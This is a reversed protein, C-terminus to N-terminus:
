ATDLASAITNRNIGFMGSSRKIVGGRSIVGYHRRIEHYGDETILVIWGYGVEVHEYPNNFDFNGDQWYISEVVLNDNKDKWSFLGKDVPKWGLDFGVRPNLALWNAKEMQYNYGNHAIVLERELHQTLDLYDKAYMRVTNAFPLSDLSLDISDWIKYPPIARSLSIREESPWERQLRKLHTWEALILRRDSSHSKLLPLSNELTKDWDKPLDLYIGLDDSLGGAREIYDPRPKADVLFLTPDHDRFVFDLFPLDSFSLKNADYLEAAIHGISNKCPFIKPKNHSIRLNIKELFASLDAPELALDNFLWTRQIEIDKLKEVAHYLLNNEPVDANQAIERAEIDLPQLVLAPDGLLVSKGDQELSYETKHQAIDPLHLMYIAPLSRELKPPFSSQGSSNILIKTAIMRIIINPSNQLDSLEKQFSSIESPKHLSVVELAVLGNIVLQDHKALAQHLADKVVSSGALLLRSCAQIANNFVPYAPFDLFLMLLEALASRIDDNQKETSADLISEIDPQSETLIENFLEDLYAEVDPWLKLYPIDEFLVQAIDSLDRILQEPYRYRESLDGAYLRVIEDKASSGFVSLMQHMADYKIGGDYYASWGSPNSLSLAKRIFKKSHDIYGLEQLRKSAGIYVSVLYTESHSDIRSEMLKCIEEIKEIEKVKKLLSNAFEHWKFFNSSQKKENDLLSRLDDVTLIASIAEQLTLQEGTILHLSYDLSSRSSLDRGLDQPIEISDPSIGVKRLGNCIDDVWSYRHNELVDIKIREVFRESFELAVEAGLIFNTKTIFSSVLEGSNTRTFPFLLNEIIYSIEVFPPNDSNLSCILLGILSEDYTISKQELLSKYLLLAKHPSIDFVAQLVVVLADDVRSTTEEVSLAQRVIKKIISISATNDLSLNTKRIWNAWQSLQYDKESYIGRASKVLKSLTSFAKERESIQLWAEVQSECEKVRGYVDLGQLMFVEIRELQNKAWEFDIDYKTIALVINRQLGAWWVNSGKAWRLSFEKKIAQLTSNGHKLACVVLYESIDEKVGETQLRFTASSGQWGLEMLDFIWKVKHIFVDSEEINNLHGEVWFKALTFAILAIQRRALRTDRDDYDEYTTQEEAEKVLQEPSISQDLAFRMRAYRFLLDILKPSNDHASTDRDSLPVIKVRNLWSQATAKYGDIGLFYIVEVISLLNSTKDRGSGFSKPEEMKILKLLLEKAHDNENIRRLHEITRLLTFYRTGKDRQEDIAEFFVNWGDWDERECCDLAGGHLLWNQLNHSSQAVDTNKDNLYPEIQIRRVIQVTEIPSRILSASDVWESLLDDLDQHLANQRSILRGSLYELPEALEFIRVAEQKNVGYLSRALSLASKDKKLRLRAGDRAYDIALDSRGAEILLHPLQSDELANSRQQLSAGVLTYRILAVPDLLEGASKIALRVDTEIADIPRLAEVQTRFWDYQAIEVVQKHEGARYYHFLTEWRFPDDSKEYLQALRLHIEQNIQESNRGPLDDATRAELFIRFSNHFFEWRGLSDESFYQGFTRQLKLLLSKTTIPWEAIWKIPIPGRIRALLGLFESFDSDDEIKRWHSFYQDEINGSYAITGDLIKAFEDPSESLFLSNLLYILSLPHGDVLQYIKQDFSNSIEPLTQHIIDFINQPSLRGMRIVHRDQSLINQIGAPLNPLNKTQSGLVLYVGSPITAPLPLDEILSRNPHQERAIHDLGDILIITKTKTEEFDKGLLSLQQYFFQNLAIRDTPDPHKESGGRLRQIQLTTDHFFNISEGRLVSPDQADPVYAYYRVSRIPLTRLTQTLFTSKGSGPPGLVGIYGGDLEQLKAQFELATEQIAKYVTPVAFEHKNRLEHKRKNKEITEESEQAINIELKEVKEIKEIYTGHTVHVTRSSNDIPSLPTKSDPIKSDGKKNVFYAAIWTLIDAVVTAWGLINQGLGVPKESTNIDLWYTISALLLVIGLGILLHYIIRRSM